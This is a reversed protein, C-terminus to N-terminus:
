TFFVLSCCFIEEYKRGLILIYHTNRNAHRGDQFVKCMRLLVPDGPNTPFVFPNHWLEENRSRSSRPSQTRSQSFRTNSQKLSWIHKSLETANKSKENQFSSRHNLYRTKFTGETLGVYIEQANNDENIVTAQYVIEKIPMKRRIPLQKKAAIAHIKKRTAHHKADENLLRKNHASIINRVNPMCSYGLKLSNRNFIKRLPHDKTFCENIINLFKHGINTTVNSSYPPNFWIVKRNRSRNESTAQPNFHLKYDYGSNKLAEQCPKITSDFSHQDSLINSLRHNISEPIRFM